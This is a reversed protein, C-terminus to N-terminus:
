SAQCLPCNIDKDFSVIRQTMNLGDWLLLKTKAANQKTRFVIFHSAQLSAIMVPTTALVGSEACRLRENAHQEKPFLCEYCASDGEVMFM